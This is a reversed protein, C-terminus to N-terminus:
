RYCNIGIIAGNAEPIAVNGSTTAILETKGSKSPGLNKSLDIKLTLMNGKVEMEVNKMIWVEKNNLAVSREVGPLGSASHLTVM